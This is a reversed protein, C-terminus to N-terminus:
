QYKKINESIIWWSKGVFIEHDVYAYAVQERDVLINFWEQFRVMHHTITLRDGFKSLARLQELTNRHEGLEVRDLKRVSASLANRHSWELTHCLQDITWNLPKSKDM